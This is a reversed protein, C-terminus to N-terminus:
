PRASSTRTTSCRFRARIADSAANVERRVYAVKDADHRFATRAPQSM